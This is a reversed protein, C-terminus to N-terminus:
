LSGTSQGDPHRGTDVELREVSGVSVAEQAEAAGLFSWVCGTATTTMVMEGMSRMMLTGIRFSLQM